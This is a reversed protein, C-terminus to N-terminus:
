ESDIRQNSHILSKTQIVWDHIGENDAAQFVIM